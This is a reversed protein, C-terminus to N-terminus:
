HKVDHVTYVLRHRLSIVKSWLYSSGPSRVLTKSAGVGLPGGEHPIAEWGLAKM